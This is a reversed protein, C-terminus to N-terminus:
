PFRAAGALRELGVGDFSAEAIPTISRPLCRTIREILEFVLFTTVRDPGLQGKPGVILAWELEPAEAASVTTLQAIGGLLVLFM